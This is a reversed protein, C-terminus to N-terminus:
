ISVVRANVHIGTVVDYQVLHSPLQIWRARHNAIWHGWLWGKVLQSLIAFWWEGAKSFILSCPLCTPHGHRIDVDKRGNIWGFRLKNIGEGVKDNRIFACLPEVSQITYIRLPWARGNRLREITRFIFGFRVLKVINKLVIWMSWDRLRRIHVEGTFWRLNANM